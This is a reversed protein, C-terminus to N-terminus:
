VEELTVKVGALANDIESKVYYLDLVKRERMGAPRGTERVFWNGPSGVFTINEPKRFWRPKELIARFIIKTPHEMEEMYTVKM